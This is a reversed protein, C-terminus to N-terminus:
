RLGLFWPTRHCSGVLQRGGAIGPVEVLMVAVIGSARRGHAYTLKVPAQGMIQSRLPSLQARPHGLLRAVNMCSASGRGRLSKKPQLRESTDGCSSSCTADHSEHGPRQNGQVSRSGKGRRGARSRIDPNVGSGGIVSIRLLSM